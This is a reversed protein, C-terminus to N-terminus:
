WPLAAASLASLVEVMGAGPFPLPTSVSTSDVSPLERSIKDAQSHLSRRLIWVLTQSGTEIEMDLNRKLSDGKTAWTLGLCEVERGQYELHQSSLPEKLMQM